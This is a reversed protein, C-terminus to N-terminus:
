AHQVKKEALPARRRLAHQPQTTPEFPHLKRPPVCFSGKTGDTTGQSSVDNINIIETRTVPDFLGIHYLFGVGDSPFSYPKYDNYVTSGFYGKFYSDEPESFDFNQHSYTDHLEGACEDISWPAVFDGTYTQAPNWFELAKEFVICILFDEGSPAANRLFAPNTVHLTM